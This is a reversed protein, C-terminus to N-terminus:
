NALFKWGLLGEKIKLEIQEGILPPKALDNLRIKELIDDEFVYIFYSRPKQRIENSRPPLGILEVEFIEYSKVQIHKPFIRNTLSGFLPAFFLATFFIFFFVKMRENLDKEKKSVFLGLIAGIISLVMLSSSLLSKVQFINGFRPFEFVYLIFFAFILLTGSWLLIREKWSFQFFLPRTDYNKSSM